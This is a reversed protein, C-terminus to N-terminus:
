DRQYVGTFRSTALVHGRMAQVLEQRSAGEPLGLHPVDLAFMDFQYHHPGHGRPPFPGGYGVNGFDNEGEVATQVPFASEPIEDIGAPIDFVIWHTFDGHPADPDHMILAYGQTDEPAGSWRLEPSAGEGEGTLREPIPGGDSFSSSTLQFDTAVQTPM